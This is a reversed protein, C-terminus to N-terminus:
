TIANLHRVVNRYDSEATDAQRQRQAEGIASQLYQADVLIGVQEVRNAGPPHREGLAAGLLEEIADRRRSAQIEGGPRCVGGLRRVDHDRESGRRERMDLAVEALHTLREVIEKRHKAFTM